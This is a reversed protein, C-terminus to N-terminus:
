SLIGVFLKNEDLIRRSLILLVFELFLHSINHINITLMLSVLVVNTVDIIDNKLILEM